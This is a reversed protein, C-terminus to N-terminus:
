PPTLCPGLSIKLTVRVHFNLLLWSCTLCSQTKTPIAIGSSGWCFGRYYGNSSEWFCWLQEHKWMCILWLVRSLPFEGYLISTDWDVVSTIIVHLEKKEMPYTQNLTSFRTIVLLCALLQLQLELFPQATVLLVTRCYWNEQTLVVKIGHMDSMLPFSPVFITLYSDM